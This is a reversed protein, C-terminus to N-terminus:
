RRAAYRVTRQLRINAPRTLLRTFGAVLLGPIEIVVKGAYLLDALYVRASFRIDSEVPVLHHGITHM